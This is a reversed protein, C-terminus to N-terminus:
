DRGDRRRGPTTAGILATVDLARIRLRRTGPAITLEELQALVDASPGVGAFHRLTLYAGLELTVLRDLNAEFQLVKPPHGVRQVEHEGVNKAQDTDRIFWYERTAGPIGEPRGYLESLTNDEADRFVTWEATAYNWGAVFPIRTAQATWQLDISFSGELVDLADDVVPAEAQDDLTPDHMVVFMEGYRSIGFRCDASLNWRGIWTRVPLRDGMAAGLIAHGLYGNPPYRANAQAKIVDFSGEHVVQVVRDFLDQTPNSLPGGTQYGEPNAVYTILFHRYQDAIAALVLGDEDGTTTWGSVNATLTTSGNAVTDAPTIDAPVETGGTFSIDDIAVDLLDAGAKYMWLGNVPLTEDIEFDEVPITIVQWTTNDFTDLGYLGDSLDVWVGLPLTNEGSVTFHLRLVADGWGLTGNKLYFQLATYDNIFYATAAPPEPDGPLRFYGVAVDEELLGLGEIHTTGGHPDSTANVDWRSLADYFFIDDHLVGGVWSEVYTEGAGANEAYLVPDTVSAPTGARGRILTYRKGGVDEYLPGSHGPFSWNAPDQTLISVGDLFVDLVRAFHGAVMWIHWNDTGRGIYVPQMAGLPRVHTGYIIPVPHGKADDHVEVLDWEDADIVRQPIRHEDNLMTHGVVDELQLDVSLPPGPSAQRLPGVFITLADELAARTQRTVMRAIYLGNTWYREVDSALKSRLSRDFDSLRFDFSSGQWDGTRPESLTRAADGWREVRAQKYGRYYTPPDQLDWDSYAVIAPVAGSRAEPEAPVPWEIWALWGPNLSAPLAAVTPRLIEIILQTVTLASPAAHALELALQTAAPPGAQQSALETVLQTVGLTAAPPEVHLVEVAAQSVRGEATSPPAGRVVEVLAQSVRGELPALGRVVEIAVQSVRADITPLAHVVEVAAQSVRGDAM